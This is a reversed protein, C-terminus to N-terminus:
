KLAKNEYNEFYYEIFEALKINGSLVLGKACQEEFLVAQRQVEKDIQKKTMNPEPKYTMRRRIQNGNIYYGCCATIRYSKGRKEITAM